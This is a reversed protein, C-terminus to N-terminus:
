RSFYSKRGAMTRRACKVALCAAPVQRASVQRGCVPLACSRVLFHYCNRPTAVDRYPFTQSAGHTDPPAESILLSSAQCPWALVRGTASQTEAPVECAAWSVRGISHALCSTGAFMLRRTKSAYSVSRASVRIAHPPM